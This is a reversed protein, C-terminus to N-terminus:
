TVKIIQSQITEGKLQEKLSDLGLFGSMVVSSTYKVMTDFLEMKIKGVENIEIHGQQHNEEIQDFIRDAITVMNPIQSTIFDYNFVKSIVKRHHKWEDNELFGLAKYAISTFAEFTDHFKHLVVIKESSFLEKILEPNLVIIQPNNIINSVIIDYNFYEHKHFYFSDQKQEFAQVWQDYYPTALPKFPLEAVKYGNKRFLETYHRRMKKPKFYLKWALYTAVSVILALLLAFM